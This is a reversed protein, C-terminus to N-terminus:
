SKLALFLVEIIEKIKANGYKANIGELASKVNLKSDKSKLIEMSFEEAVMFIMSLKTIQSNLETEFGVGNASGHHQKILRSVESPMSKQKEAWESTLKAHNLFSKKEAPTYDSVELGYPSDIFHMSDRILLRDNFFACLALAEKHDHTVWSLKKAISMCMISTMFSKRFNVPADSTYLKKIEGILNKSLSNVVNDIAAEAVKVSKEDLGVSILQNFVEEKVDIETSKQGVSNRLLELLVKNMKEFFVLKDEKKIFVKAIKELKKIEKPTLSSDEKLYKVYHFYGKKKMRIYIDSPTFNMRLLTKALIPYYLEKEDILNFLKKAHGTNSKLYHGINVDEKFSHLNLDSDNVEGKGIYLLDVIIKNEKVNVLVEEKFEDDFVIAAIDDLLNFLGICDNITHVTVIGIDIMSSVDEEVKKRIPDNKILTVLHM